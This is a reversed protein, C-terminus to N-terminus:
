CFGSICMVEGIYMPRAAVCRPPRGTLREWIEAGLTRSEVLLTWNFLASCMAPADGISFRVKEEPDETM